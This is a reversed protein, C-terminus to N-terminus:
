KETFEGTSANFKCEVTQIKDIHSAITLKITETEKNREMTILSDSNIKVLKEEEKMLSFIHSIHPISLPIYSVTQNTVLISCNLNTSIKKLYEIFEYKKM